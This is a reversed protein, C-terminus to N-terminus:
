IDMARFNEVVSSNVSCYSCDTFRFIQKGKQKGITEVDLEAPKWEGEIKVLYYKSDLFSENAKINLEEVMKSYSIEERAVKSELARLDAVKFIKKMTKFNVAHGVM